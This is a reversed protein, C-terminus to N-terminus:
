SYVFGESRLFNSQFKIYVQHIEIRAEHTVFCKFRSIWGAIVLTASFLSLVSANADLHAMGSRSSGCGINIYSRLRRREPMPEYVSLALSDSKRGNKPRFRTYEAFESRHRSNAAIIRRRGASDRVTGYSIEAAM